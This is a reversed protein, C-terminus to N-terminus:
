RVGKPLSRSRHSMSSGVKRRPRDATASWTRPHPQQWPRPWINVHRHTYHKGEWNFPGQHHTLAKKILDIAEWYREVNNIPNANSSTAGVGRTDERADRTVPGRNM